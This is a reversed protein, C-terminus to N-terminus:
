NAIAQIYDALDAWNTATKYTNVASAPVFISALNHSQFLCFCTLYLHEYSWM